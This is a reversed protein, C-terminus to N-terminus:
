KNVETNTSGDIEFNLYKKESNLIISVFHEKGPTCVLKKGGDFAAEFTKSEPSYMFEIIKQGMLQSLETDIAEYPKENGDFVRDSDILKWFSTEVWLTFVGKNEKLEGLELFIVNAHGRWARSINLNYIPLVFNNEENNVLVSKDM